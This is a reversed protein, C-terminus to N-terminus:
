NGATSYQKATSNRGPATEAKKNSRAVAADKTTRIAEAPPEEPLPAAGEARALLPVGKARAAKGMGGPTQAAADDENENGDQMGAATRSRTLTRKVRVREVSMSGPGSTSGQCIRQAPRGAM